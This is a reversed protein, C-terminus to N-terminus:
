REFAWLGYTDVKLVPDFQVEYDVVRWEAFLEELSEKTFDHVHHPNMHRTPIIPTSIVICRGARNAMALYAGLPDIHEITELGVFVDFDFDPAWTRLDAEIVDSGPLKDVGIWTGKLIDRGYGIGCAADLVTDTDRVHRNAFEYRYRHLKWQEEDDTLSLREM